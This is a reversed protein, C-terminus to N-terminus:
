CQDTATDCAHLSLVLDVPTKMEVKEIRQTIFQLQDYQLSTRIEELKEVVEKKLDIGVMNINFGKIEKLYHYLAFTLYGKGCGFDYVQLTKPLFPTVTEVIEIFRNVQRFKAFKQPYVVGERNAIGLAHWFEAHAHSSILYNKERNHTAITLKKSPSKKLSKWAGNKQKIFHLDRDEFFFHAEKFQELLKEFRNKLENLSLNEHFVQNGKFFACQIQQRNKIILPRLNIKQLEAGKQPHALIAEIWLPDNFLELDM